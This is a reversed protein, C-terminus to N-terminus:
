ETILKGGISEVDALGHLDTVNTYGAQTLLVTAQSSRNGSHCYVFLKTSKAVDPLKGAQMDILSWNLASAFHGTKYEDATRVDYLRAGSQVDSQVVAFTLSPASATETGRTIWLLAAFAGVILVIIGALKM